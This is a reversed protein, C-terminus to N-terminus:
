HTGFWLIFIFVLIMANFLIVNQFSNDNLNRNLLLVVISIISSISLIYYFYQYVGNIDSALRKSYDEKISKVGIVNKLLKTHTIEIQNENIYYDAVIFKFGKETEFEYGYLTTGHSFKSGSGKVIKRENVIFDQSNQKPLVLLDLLSLNFFVAVPFLFFLAFKQHKRQM